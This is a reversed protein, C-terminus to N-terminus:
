NLQAPSYFFHMCYSNLKKESNKSFLLVLLTLLSFIIFRLKFNWIFLLHCFICFQDQQLTVVGFWYQDTDLFDYILFEHSCFFCFHVLLFDLWCFGVILLFYTTNVSYYIRRIHVRANSRLLYSGAGAQSSSLCLLNSHNNKDTIINITRWGRYINRKLKFYITSNYM